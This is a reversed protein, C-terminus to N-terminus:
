RPARTDDRRSNALASLAQAIESRRSESSATQQLRELALRHATELAAARSSPVDPQVGVREWNSRTVPNVATAVPIGARFGDGLEFWQWPNAGGRTPEGVLTARGLHKLDYAFEEAASFTEASTLVYVPVDLLRKGAIEERTHTKSTTDTARWYFSNLHVGGPLLYSSILAVMEGSGGGNRRLDFILADTEAVVAMAEAVRATSRENIEDFGWFEVYGINGDLWEIRRFGSNQRDLRDFWSMGARPRQAEPAALWQVGLHHDSRRLVETLREAVATRTTLAAFASSAAFETLAAEIEPIKDILVYRERLEVRLQKVLRHKDGTSMESAAAAAATLWLTFLLFLFRHM